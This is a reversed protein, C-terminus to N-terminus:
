GRRRAGGMPEGMPGCDPGFGPSPEVRESMWDAGFIGTWVKWQAEDLQRAAESNFKARERLRETSVRGARQSLSEAADPYAESRPDLRRWEDRIADAEKELATLQPQLVDYAALVKRRQDDSAKVEALALIIRREFAPGTTAYSLQHRPPAACAGLLAALALCAFLKM